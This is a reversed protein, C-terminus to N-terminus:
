LKEPPGKRPSTVGAALRRIVMALEDQDCWYEDITGIKSFSSSNFGEEIDNYYLCNVGHVAVVWFGGGMTGYPNQEWKIPEPLKIANWLAMEQPSLEKISDDIKEDIEDRTIPAWKEM